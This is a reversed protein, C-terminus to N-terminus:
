NVVTFMSGYLLTILLMTYGTDIYQVWDCM